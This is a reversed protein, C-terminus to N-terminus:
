ALRAGYWHFTMAPTSVMVAVVASKTHLLRAPRRGAYAPAACAPAATRLNPRMVVREVSPVVGSTVGSRVPRWAHPTWSTTFRSSWLVAAARLPTFVITARCSSPTVETIHRHLRFSRTFTYM